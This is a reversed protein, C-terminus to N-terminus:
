SEAPGSLERVTFIAAATLLAVACFALLIAPTSFWGPTATLGAGGDWIPRLLERVQHTMSLESIPTPIRGVGAEIIGGYALGLVVYRATLTGCLFGLADFTAILLMQAILLKPAVTALGPAHHAVAFGLVVGFAILFDIQTCLMHAIFKFVVFAPRPVPRTLVYDVTGSKMEDRLAGAGALFALAPVLFTVYFDIVWHFFPGFGGSRPGTAFLLLTLVALGIALMLLHGPVLYRRFTLRWIGGFAHLLNPAVSPAPSAATTNM